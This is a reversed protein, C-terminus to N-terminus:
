VAVVWLDHLKPEKPAIKSVTIKMGWSPSSGDTTLLRDKSEKQDPLSDHNFGDEHETIKKAVIDYLEPIIVDQADKGDKGPEGKDGKPGREGKPGSEGELGIPGRDGKEGQEGQDGRPGQDGQDGKSGEFGQIGRDGRPGKPGKLPDPTM